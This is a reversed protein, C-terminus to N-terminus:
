ISPPGKMRAEMAVKADAVNKDFVLQQEPTLIARLEVNQKARVDMSAKMLTSRDAGEAQMDARIKQMEPQYKSQIEAQKAKQADSLDIGVFLSPGRGGRPAGGQPPPGGQASVISLSAGGAVLAVGLAVIRIAKM